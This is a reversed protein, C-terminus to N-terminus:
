SAIGGDGYPMAGSSFSDSIGSVEAVILSYRRWSVSVPEGSTCIASRVPRM